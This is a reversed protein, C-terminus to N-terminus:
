DEEAKKSNSISGTTSRIKFATKIRRFYKNFFDSIDALIKCKSLKKRVSNNM